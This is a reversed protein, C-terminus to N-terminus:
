FRGKLLLLFQKLNKLKCLEWDTTTLTDDCFLVEGDIDESYIKNADEPDIGNKLLWQKIDDKTSDRSIMLLLKDM